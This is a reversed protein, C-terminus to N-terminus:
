DGIYVVANESAVLLCALVESKLIGTLAVLLSRQQDVKRIGSNVQYRSVGFCITSLCLKGKGASFRLAHPDPM